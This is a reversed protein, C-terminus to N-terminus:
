PDPMGLAGLRRKPGHRRGVASPLGAELFLPRNQTPKGSDLGSSKMWGRVRRFLGAAAGCASSSPHSRSIEPRSRLRRDRRAGAPPLSATLGGSGTRDRAGVLIGRPRDFGAEHLTVKDPSTRRRTRGIWCEHSTPARGTLRSCSCSRCPRVAFPGAGRGSRRLGLEGQARPLGPRRVRGPSRHRRLRRAVAGVATGGGPGGRPPSRRRAGTGASWLLWKCCSSWSLGTSTRADRHEREFPRPRFRDRFRSSRALDLRSLEFLWIAREGVRGTTPPRFPRTTEV